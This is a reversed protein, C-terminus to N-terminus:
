IRIYKRRLEVEVANDDYAEGPPTRLNIGQRACIRELEELPTLGAPFLSWTLARLHPFTGIALQGTFAEFDLAGRAPAGSIALATISRPISALTDEDPFRGLEFRELQTCQALPSQAAGPGPDPTKVSLSRLRAGHADLVGGLSSPNTVHSKHCLVQLPETDVAGSPPRMLSALCPGIDRLFMTNFKVSVLALRPPPDFPPLMRNLNSTIELLRVSPFSAVLQHMIRAHQADSPAFDQEVSLATIRPGEARLLDLTERDFACSITTVDLHRLNPLRLIATALASADPTRGRGTHRVTLSLVCTALVRGRETAPDIAALLSPLTNRTTARRHPETYINHPILVRRFLLRQAHTSWAKCVLSCAALVPLNCTRQHFCLPVALCDLIELILDLGLVSNISQPACDM